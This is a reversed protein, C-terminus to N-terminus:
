PRLDYLRTYDKDSLERSGMKVAEVHGDIFAWNVKGSHRIRTNHIRDLCNYDFDMTTGDSCQYMESPGYRLNTNNKWPTYGNVTASVTYGCVRPTATKGSTADEVTVYGWDIGLANKDSGWMGGADINAQYILKTIPGSPCTMVKEGLGYLEMLGAAWCYAVAPDPDIAPYVPMQFDDSDNSYMVFGLGLQKLNSRCNSSLAAQKAKALAPLLMSTLIAIIAIVVLLEILTFTGKKM